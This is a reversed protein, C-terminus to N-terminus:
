RYPYLKRVLGAPTTDNRVAFREEHLRTSWSQTAGAEVTFAMLTSGEARVADMVATNYHGGRYALTVPRRGVADYVADSGLRVEDIVQQRTLKPLTAHTYTHNAIEMGAANMERLQRVTLFDERGFREGIVFFTARLHLRRLIPFLYRYDSGHGDDVSIVFAKGHIRKSAKTYSAVERALVSRWGDRYLATLQAEIQAPTIFMSPSANAPWQSRPLVNHYMLVPVHQVFAASTPEPAASLAALGFLAALCLRKM